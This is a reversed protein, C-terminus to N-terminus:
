AASASIQRGRARKHTIREQRHHRDSEGKVILPLSGERCGMTLLYAGCIFMVLKFWKKCQNLCGDVGNVVM